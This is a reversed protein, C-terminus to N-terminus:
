LTVERAEQGVGAHHLVSIRGLDIEPHAAAIRLKGKLLDLQPTEHEETGYVLFIGRYYRANGCFWTLKRLDERFEDAPRVCPKVEVCALNGDMDGPRHCLFDPKSRAYRGERFVPHGSKDVEGGLSFDFGDWGDRIWHYLEYCYVRERYIPDDLEAVPLQFYMDGVHSAAAAVMGFFIDFQEQM